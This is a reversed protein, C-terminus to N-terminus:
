IIRNSEYGSENGTLVPRHLLIYFINAVPQWKKNKKLQTPTNFSPIKAKNNICVDDNKLFYM